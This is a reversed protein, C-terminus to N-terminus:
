FSERDPRLDLEQTWSSRHQQILHFYTEAIAEPLMCAGKEAHFRNEAQQGWILGDLLIHAVHIGLPGFERALSQTLGRLAFKASSFASFGNGAKISATAGTVLITGQQQTLMGPLVRQIGHVAGLCVVQWLDLFDKPKTELFSGMHLYAASHIYVSATGWRNEVREVALDVSGADTVDCSVALFSAHSSLSQDAQAGRSLGAVSYGETLLKRCLAQGLGPGAGAVIAIKNPDAM